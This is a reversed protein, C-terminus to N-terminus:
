PKLPLGDAPMRLGTCIIGMPIILSWQGSRFTSFYMLLKVKKASNANQQCDSRKGIRPAGADFLLFM